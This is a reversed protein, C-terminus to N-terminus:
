PRQWRLKIDHIIPRVDASNTTLRLEVEFASGVLPGGHQALLITDRTLITPYDIYTAIGNNEAPLWPGLNGNRDRARIRLGVATGEPASAEWDIADVQAAVFGTDFVYHWFGRPATFSLVTSGTFDSYTYHTGVGIPRGEPLSAARHAAGPDDPHNTNEPDIKFVRDSALGLTWGYGNRDFGIGRLDTGVGPLANGNADKTTGIFYWRSQSYDQENVVLRGNFGIPFFSAWIHGTAPEAGVGTTQFTSNPASGGNAPMWVQVSTGNVAPTGAPVGFCHHRRTNYDFMGVGSGNPWAGLWIRNRGDVAIGYTGCGIGTYMAVWQGTRTDFQALTDRNFSSTFLQGASDIVLGYVGGTNGTQGQLPQQVGNADPAFLPAGTAPVYPGLAFSHPDISQVGGGSYGIWVMGDPGAAIGRISPLSPNPQASYAVCEDAMPDASSNVLAVIGNVNRSTEITGNGNRDQCSEENWFIKTLRGDDRGGIWVNGDLDVATRSPNAGVWYIGEEQDTDTNFRTVTNHTHNAAWLYPPLFSNQSLTVGARGSPNTPDGAEIVIAGDDANGTTTPNAPELYCSDDCMGCANVLGEDTLGDCDNDLGDCVETGPPTGGACASWDGGSCTQTGYSCVGGADGCPRTDGEHCGCGEDTLGDCDDDVGNGHGSEGCLEALPLVAGVCDGWFEGSCTQTGQVCRGVGAFEAAGPFCLQTAATCACGEDIVGNCNNDLGDGCTENDEIDGCGGCANRVGEDITGDCDNDENDCLEDRPATCRPCTEDIFGDCDNDLDDGCIEDTPLVEAECAGWTGSLNCDRTGGHCLGVGLTRRPGSYCPQNQRPLQPDDRPVVCTCTEDVQGNGDDDIGNGELTPGCDEVLPPDGEHICEGIANVLGEDVEGDCDDDINNCTESTPGVEGECTNSWFGNICSQAGAVCRMEATLDLPNGVSSCLRTQGLVCACGDDATGSCDDDLFNGCSEAGGPHINPDRDNCDLETACNSGAFYGDGDRDECPAGNNANNANNNTSNNDANNANNANNVGGVPGGAPPEDSCAVFSVAILVGFCWVMLNKM